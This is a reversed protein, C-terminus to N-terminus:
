GSGFNMAKGLRRSFHTSARKHGCVADERSCVDVIAVDVLNRGAETLHALLALDYENFAFGFVIIRTSLQLVRFSLDWQHRLGEPAQKEPTPAVILAKGSLGRRGETYKGGADWSISGHLKALPLRGTLRVPNRWQSVPYPERGQLVEGVTGYNLGQSGLAYEVLLDYNLTVVGSLRIGCQTIFDAAARVGPRDWKRNEDIMLVHRRERGARWEQWIYPESLRRVVYWLVDEKNRVDGSSLVTAIFQEAIGAPNMADWARKLFEVRELRRQEQIGFPRVAFDFLQSGLPLDAAWKSFGAGLLLALVVKEL